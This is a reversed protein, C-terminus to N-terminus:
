RTFEEDVFPPYEYAVDGEDAGAAAEPAPRMHEFLYATISEDQFARSVFAKSIVTPPEEPPEEGEEPPPLASTALLQWARTIDAKSTGGAASLQEVMFSVFEDFSILGDGSADLKELQEQM